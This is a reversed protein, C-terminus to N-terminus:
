IRFFSFPGVYLLLCFGAGLRDRVLRLLAVPPFAPLFDAGSLLEVGATQIGLEVLQRAVFGAAAGLGPGLALAAAVDLGAQGSAFDGIQGKIGRQAGGRGM